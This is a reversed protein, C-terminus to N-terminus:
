RTYSSSKRRAGKSSVRTGRVLTVVSSYGPPGIFACLDPADPHYMKLVGAEKTGLGLDKIVIRLMWRQEEATMGM